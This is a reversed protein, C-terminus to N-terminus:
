DAEGEMVEEVVEKYHDLENIKEELFEKIQGNNIVWRSSNIIKNRFAEKERYASRTEEIINVFNQVFLIDSLNELDISYNKKILSLSREYIPDESNSKIHEIDDFLGARLNHEYYDLARSVEVAGEDSKIEISCLSNPDKEETFTAVLTRINPKEVRVLNYYVARSLTEVDYTITDRYVDESHDRDFSIYHDSEVKDSEIFNIYNLKEYVKVFDSYFSDLVFDYYALFYLSNFYKVDFDKKDFKRKIDGDSMVRSAHSHISRMYILRLRSHYANMRYKDIMDSSFIQGPKHKLNESYFFLHSFNSFSISWIRQLNFEKGIFYHDGKDEIEMFDKYYDMIGEVGDSLKIDKTFPNLFPPSNKVLSLAKDSFRSEEFFQDFFPDKINNQKKDQLYDISRVVFTIWLRQLDSTTRTLRLIDFSDAIDNVEQTSKKLKFSTTM